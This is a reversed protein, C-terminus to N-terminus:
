YSWSRPRFLAGSSPLRKRQSPLRSGSLTRRARNEVPIRLGPAILPFALRFLSIVCYTIPPVEQNDTQQV